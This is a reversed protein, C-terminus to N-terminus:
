GPNDQLNIHSCMLVTVQHKLFPLEYNIHMSLIYMVVLKLLASIVKSRITQDIGRNKELWGGSMSLCLYMDWMFVFLFKNRVPICSGTPLKGLVKKFVCSPFSKKKKKKDKIHKTQLLASCTKSQNNM